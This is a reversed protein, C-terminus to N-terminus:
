NLRPDDPFSTYFRTNDTQRALVRRRLGAPDPDFPDDRTAPVVLWDGAIVEAELQAADWGAYGAFVRARAISADAPVSSVDIIGADGVVATWEAVDGATTAIAIAVEVQMPGGVFVVAPPAVRGSWEPLHEAVPLETPRNLVVGLAGEQEHACVLVVTGAFNADRMTPSAVLLSGLLSM